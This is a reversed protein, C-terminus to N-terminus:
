YRVSGHLNPVLLILGLIHLMAMEIHVGGVMTIFSDEGFDNSFKWQIQKLLTYVPQDVTIRRIQGPNVKHTVKQIVTMCHKVMAPSNICENILPLIVSSCPIQLEQVINEQYYAAWNCSKESAKTNTSNTEDVFKLWELSDQVPNM